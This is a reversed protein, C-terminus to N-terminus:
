MRWNQVHCAILLNLCFERWNQFDWDQVKWIRQEPLFSLKLLSKVQLQHEEFLHSLKQENRIQHHLSQQKQGITKALQLSWLIRIHMIWQKSPALVHKIECYRKQVLWREHVIEDSSLGLLLWNEIWTYDPMFINLLRWVKQFPVWCKIYIIIISVESYVKLVPYSVSIHKCYDFQLLYFIINTSFSNKQHFVNNSQERSFVM